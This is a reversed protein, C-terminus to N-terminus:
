ITNQICNQFKLKPRCTHTHTNENAYIPLGFLAFSIKFAETDFIVIGIISFQTHMFEKVNNPLGLM